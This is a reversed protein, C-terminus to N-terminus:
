PREFPMRGTLRGYVCQAAVGAKALLSPVHLPKTSGGTAQRVLPFLEAHTTVGPSAGLLTECRSLSASREVVRRVMRTLDDRHLYAFGSRGVGPLVRATLGRGGWLRLVSWLPPLECWETFIGGIRLIAVPVRAALAEAMREGEAKSGGYPIAAWNRSSETICQGEPPPELAGVSSAFVVRQAGCADAADFVALTGRVNTRDYEPHRDGGFHWFAALHLVCAPSGLAAVHRNFAALVAAPEAIDVREWRVVPATARLAAVPERFDLATVAHDRALEVIIRSGLFGAAGIVILNKAGM